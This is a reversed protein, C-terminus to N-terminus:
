DIKVVGVYKKILWKIEEIASAGLNRIKFLEEEPTALVEGFTKKGARKLGNQARISIKLNEIPTDIPLPILYDSSPAAYKVLCAVLEQSLVEYKRYLEEYKAIQREVENEDAKPGGKIIKARLPHRLKRMAKAEIQRIRERTLGYIEGIAQLTMNEAYRLLIIEEERMSLTSVVGLMNPVYIKLAEEEDGCFIDLALNFPYVDTLKPMANRRNQGM